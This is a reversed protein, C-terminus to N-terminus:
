ASASRSPRGGKRGNARAADAKAKSTARGGSAGLQAAMWRRSGFVGQMLAPVYVDADLKPWHLGLGAPTVEIDALDDPAAGALREVLGVPVALEVGNHLRVVVRGHKRDYRAAVAHGAQRIEATRTQAQEFEHESIEM